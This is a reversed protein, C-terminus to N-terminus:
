RFRADQPYRSRARTKWVSAGEADGLGALTRVVVAFDDAEATQRGEVLGSITARAEEARGQSRLLLALGVRGPRSTPVIDIEKRFEAEAESERGLRALCDALSAHLNAFVRGTDSASREVASRFRAEADVQDGRRMAGLGLAYHSMPRSPDAEISRRAAAEAEPLRGLGMELEALFEYAGGEDQRAAIQAHDRAAEFRGALRELKAISLHASSRGPDFGIVRDFARRAEKARGAQFLTQALTEWGDSMGPNERLVGEFVRIAEDVRGAQRLGLGKEFVSWSEVHDKPDPLSEGSKPAKLPASGGLYGLSRLKERTQADVAGPQVFTSRSSQEGIWEDMRAALPGRAAILNNREMPDVSVDYFEPRPARIYRSKGETISYIESWGMHLRGYFSEAYAARDPGASLMLPLLSEGDVETLAPLAALDLLTPGIDVQRVTTSVRRVVSGGPLRVLLPIHLSERYLLIGHEQEGHDGLGEGHDAAIAIITNEFRGLERLQALFESVIKDTYAVEGDYSSAHGSYEAPPEYPTHPEYIHLFAFFPGRTGTIRDILARATVAGARQQHGLASDTRTAILDDYDDFGEAIGTGKRLVFSSVAGLTKYGQARFAAAVTKQGRLTYGLNDRVGHRAPLLATFLSAHAPLTLPVHSYAAEFVVSQSALADLEPTLGAKSGYTGVRDARLTDISILIVSAGKSRAFPAERCGCLAAALAAIVLNFHRVRM